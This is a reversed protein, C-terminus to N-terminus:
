ERLEKGTLQLFVAELTATKLTLDRVAVGDRRFEELVEAIERAPEAISIQARNEVVAAGRAELRRRLVEPVNSEAEIALTQRTGLTSRVLEDKTGLAVIRGNDIIAIRDCLREAEEMYHTTYLLAVGDAKLEGIMAYIRERSQPDVGVTPEDLLLLRPRHITGAAINLRRRMGGSLRDSREGARESLGAWALVQPIASKLEEGSLGQYRGFASLNERSSLTPYLAIEQPVYGVAARSATSSPLNGLIRVEGSDPHVRGAVSKVLTSKGAGNPGLLGLIEGPAIALSVGALAQRSGFAKFVDRVELSPPQPM